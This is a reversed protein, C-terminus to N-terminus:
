RPSALETRAIQAHVTIGGQGVEAMATHGRAVAEGGVVELRVRATSYDDFGESFGVNKIGVAGILLAIGIYGAGPKFIPSAFFLGRNNLFKGGIFSYSDRIDPLAKLVANYWFLM